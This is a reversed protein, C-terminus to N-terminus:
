PFEVPVASHLCPLCLSDLGFLRRRSAVTASFFALKLHGPKLHIPQPSGWFSPIRGRWEVHLNCTIEPLPDLTSSDPALFLPKLLPPKQQTSHWACPFLFYDFINPGATFKASLSGCGLFAYMKCLGGELFVRKLLGECRMGISTSFEHATPGLSMEPHLQLKKM